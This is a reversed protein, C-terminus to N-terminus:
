PPYVTVEAYEGYRCEGCLGYLDIQYAGLYGRDECLYSDGNAMIVTSGYGIASGCAAAGIYPWNGSAMPSGTAFYHTVRVTTVWAAPRAPAGFVPAWFYVVAAFTLLCLLTLTLAFRLM